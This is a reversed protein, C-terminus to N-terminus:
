SGHWMRMLNMRVYELRMQQDMGVKSANEHLFETLELLIERKQMDRVWSEIFTIAVIREGKTVPMVQHFTTSPYFVATGPKEKMTVTRDGLRISLEGGEYSEPDSIFVTCSVDIRLPPSYPAVGSDVHEGYAMGPQYKTMMPPAMTKPMCYDRFYENRSLGQQVIGSAEKYGPDTHSPQLNNKKSYDANSARGDEFKITQSLAQLRAVESPLLLEPIIHFV